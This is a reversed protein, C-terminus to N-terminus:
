EENSFRNSKVLPVGEVTFSNKLQEVKKAIDAKIFEM